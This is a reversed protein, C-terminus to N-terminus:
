GQMRRRSQPVHIHRQKDARFQNNSRGSTTNRHSVISIILRRLHLSGSGRPGRDFNTSDIVDTYQLLLMIKLCLPQASGGGHVGAIQTYGHRICSQQLQDIFINHGQQPGILNSGM